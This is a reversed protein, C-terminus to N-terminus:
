TPRLCPRPEPRWRWLTRPTSPACTAPRATACRGGASCSRTSGLLGRPRARRHHDEGRHAPEVAHCLRGRPRQGRARDGTRDSGDCHSPGRRRPGTRPYAPGPVGLGLLAQGRCWRRHLDRVAGDARAAPDTRLVRGPLRARGDRGRVDRHGSREAAPHLDPLGRHHRRRHGSRHDWANNTWVQAAFDPAPYNSYYAEFAENAYQERMAPTGMQALVAPDNYAWFGAAVGYVCFLLMAAITWWRVRYFAAPLSIVAFRAVDNWAPEHAGAILGRARALLISLRTVISPDPASTRVRSLDTATLQYNRILEDAEAGDLRRQRLLAALREWRGSNVAVFADIDVAVLTGYTLVEFGNAAGAAAAPERDAAAAPGLPRGAGAPGCPCGGPGPCGPGPCLWPPGRGEACGGAVLEPGLSGVFGSPRGSSRIM